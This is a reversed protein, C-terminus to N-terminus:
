RTQKGGGAIERGTDFPKGNGELAKWVLYYDIGRARSNLM